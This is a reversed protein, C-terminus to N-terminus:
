LAVWLLLWRSKKDASIYVWILSSRYSCDSRETQYPVSTPMKVHYSCSLNWAWNRPAQSVNTWATQDPRHTWINIPYIRYHSSCFDCSSEIKSQIQILSLLTTTRKGCHVIGNIRLYEIIRYTFLPWNSYVNVKTKRRLGFIIKSVLINKKNTVHPHYESVKNDFFLKGESSFPRIWNERYPLERTDITMRNWYIVTESAPRFRRGLFVFM